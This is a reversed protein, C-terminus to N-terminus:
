RLCIGLWILWVPLVLMYVITTTIAAAYMMVRWSFLRAVHFGFGFLAIVCGVLALCGLGKPLPQDHGRMTFILFAATGWGIFLLLEDMAFLWVTRSQGVMFAIELAQLAGFGGDHAHAEDADAVVPWNSIWDVLSITGAQFTLDVLTIMAVANFSATVIRTGSRSEGGLVDCMSAVPAMLSFWAVAGALEAFLYPGQADRRGKWLVQLHTSNLAQYAEMGGPAESRSKHELSFGDIYLMASIIFLLAGLFSSNGAMRM